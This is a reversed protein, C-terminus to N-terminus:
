QAQKKYDMVQEQAAVLSYVGYASCHFTTPVVTLSLLSPPFPSPM